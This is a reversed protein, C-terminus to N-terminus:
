KRWSRMSSPEPNVDMAGIANGTGGTTAEEVGSISRGPFLENQLFRKLSVVGVAESALTRPYSRCQAQVDNECLLPRIKQHRDRVVVPLLLHKMYFM